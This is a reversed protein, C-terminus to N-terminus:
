ISIIINWNTIYLCPVVRKTVPFTAGPIKDVVRFRLQVVAQVTIRVPRSHLPPSRVLARLVFQLHPRCAPFMPTTNSVRYYRNKPLNERVLLTSHTVDNEVYSRGVMLLVAGSCLSVSFLLQSRFPLSPSLLQSLTSLQSSSHPSQSPLQSLTSLQSSSPLSPSPLQSLTSLQSSSHPSQSPLQSLTLFQSSSTLSPFPLQSLTSLQSSSHPSQSSLQSDSSLLISSLQLIRSQCNTNSFQRSSALATLYTHNLVTSLM